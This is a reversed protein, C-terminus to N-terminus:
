NCFDFCVINMSNKHAHVSTNYDVLQNLDAAVIKTRYFVNPFNTLIIIVLSELKVSTLIM